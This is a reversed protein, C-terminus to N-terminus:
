FFLFRVRVPRKSTAAKVSSVQQSAAPLDTLGGGRYERLEGPRCSALALSRYLPVPSVRRDEKQTHQLVASPLVLINGPNTGQKETAARSFDDTPPIHAGESARTERGAPLLSFDCVAGALIWLAAGLKKALVRGPTGPSLVPILVVGRPPARHFNLNQLHQVPNAGALERLALLPLDAGLLVLRKALIQHAESIQLTGLRALFDLSFLVRSRLLASDSAGWPLIDKPSLAKSAIGLV